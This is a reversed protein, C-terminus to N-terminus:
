KFAVHRIRLESISLPARTEGPIKLIDFEEGKDSLHFGVGKFDGKSGDSYTVDADVWLMRHGLNTSAKCSFVIFGRWLGNPSEVKRGVIEDASKVTAGFTVDKLAPMREIESPDVTVKQAAGDAAFAAMSITIALLLHKM